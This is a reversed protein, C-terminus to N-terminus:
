LDEALNSIQWLIWDIHKLFKHGKKDLEATNTNHNPYRTLAFNIARLNDFINQICDKPTAGIHSLKNTGILSNTTTKKLRMIFGGTRAIKTKSIKGM